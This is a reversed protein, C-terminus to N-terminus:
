EIEKFLPWDDNLQRVYELNAPFSALSGTHRMMSITFPEQREIGYFFTDAGQEIQRKFYEKM